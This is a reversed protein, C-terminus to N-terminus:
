FRFYIFPNYTQVAAACSSLLFLIGLWINVLVNRWKDEQPVSLLNKFLPLSCIVAILFVCMEFRNMYYSFEHGALLHPVAGFMNKFYGWAYDLVDFTITKEGTADFSVIVGRTYFPHLLWLGFITLLLTLLLLKYNKKM